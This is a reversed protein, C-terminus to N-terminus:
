PSSMACNETVSSPTHHPSALIPAWPNVDSRNLATRGFETIRSQVDKEVRCRLLELERRVEDDLNQLILHLGPTTSQAGQGCNDSVRAFQPSGNDVTNPQSPKAMVSEPLLRSVLTDLKSENGM